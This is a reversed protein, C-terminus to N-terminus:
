EFDEYDVEDFTVEPVSAAFNTFDATMFKMGFDLGSFPLRRRRIGFARFLPTNKKMKTTHCSHHNDVLRLNTQVSALKLSEAGAKAGAKLDLQANKTRSIAVFGQEATVVETVVVWNDPWEGRKERALVEKEIEYQNRIRQSSCGGIRLM